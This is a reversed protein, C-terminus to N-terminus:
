PTAARRALDALLRCTSTLKQFEGRLSKAADDPLCTLDRDVRKAAAEASQLAPDYEDKQLRSHVERRAEQLDERFCSELLQQLKLLQDGGAAAALKKWWSTFESEENGNSQDAAAKRKSRISRTVWDAEAKQIQEMVPQLDKDQWVSLTRRWQVHRAFPKIDAVRIESVHRLARQTAEREWASDEQQLADEQGPPLLTRLYNLENRKLTYADAQDWPIASLARREKRIELWGTVYSYHGFYAPTFSLAAISVVFYPWRKWISVSERSRLWYVGLAAFTLSLILLPFFYFLVLVVLGAFAIACGRDEAKSSDSM